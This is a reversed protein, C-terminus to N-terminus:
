PSIYSFHRGKASLCPPSLASPQGLGQGLGAWCLVARVARVQEDAWEEEERGGGSALYAWPLPSAATLMAQEGTGDGQLAHPFPNNPNNCPKSGRARCDYMCIYYDYDYM